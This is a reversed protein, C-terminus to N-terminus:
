EGTAFSFTYPSQLTAGSQSKLTAAITVTYVTLPQYATDPVFYFYSGDPQLNLTGTTQPTISFSSRVTSTDIYDSAYVSINNYRYVHTSGDQPYSGTVKFPAVKFWFTYPASLHVGTISRLDTSITVTYTTGAVFDAIPSFGFGNSSRVFDFLGSVGPSMSFAARVSATDIDGSFSINLESRSYVTTDGTSPYTSTVVFDTTTFTAVYPAPMKMGSKSHLTTDIRITYVTRPSLNSQLIYSFQREDLSYIFYGPAPPTLSFGGRVTATDLSDTFAAYILRTNLSINASSNSPLTNIVGFPTTSFSSSFGGVLPNGYKDHAQGAISLTYSTGAPLTRLGQFLIQSSDVGFSSVSTYRWRGPLPPSIAISSFFSTDVPANLQLRFVNSAVNASLNAPTSSKVRFYPEPTFPMIFPPVLDNGNVDVATSAIRLIYLKGVRWLFPTSPSALVPTISYVEGTSSTARGTDPLLDGVQTDFSVAHQISAQDMLKNFRVTISTGFNDYPGSSSVGPYSYIVAPKLSPDNLSGEPSVTNDKCSLLWFAALLMFFLNRATM